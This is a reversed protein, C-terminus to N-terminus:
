RTRVPDERCARRGHPGDADCALTQRLYTSFLRPREACRVTAVHTGRADTVIVGAGGASHSYVRYGQDGNLFRVSVRYDRGRQEHSFFMRAAGQSADAPYVLEPADEPGFRYQVDHWTGDEHETACLAIVHGPRVSECVFLASGCDAAQAATIGGGLLCTSALLTARIRGSM